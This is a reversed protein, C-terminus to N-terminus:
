KIVINDLFEDSHTIRMDNGECDLITLTSDINRVIKVFEEKTEFVFHIMGFNQSFNGTLKIEDGEQKTAVTYVVSKMENVKDWGDISGIKGNRVYIPYICYNQNRPIKEDILSTFDYLLSDGTLAYYMDAAVQNIGYMYDVPYVSVSGSYRYGVENFYYEDDDHFVEIWITGEKIGISKFLQSLKDNFKNKFEEAFRSEFIHMGAVYSGNEVYQMPYKDELGSFVMEGNTFTYFVVVGKNKVFKEVIVEGSYSNSSAFEYGKILEEKNNCISFGNSGCGDTPKTIVPYDVDNEREQLWEKTIKYRPVVPLGFKICLDKFAGKDQLYDWQEKTCYCPLGLDSLYQCATSIVIESGGMYVGDINQSKILEKMKEPNISNVQYGESAIEFIGASCDNGTAILEIGQEDAFQKVAEKWSSGGLILLRKGRLDKM